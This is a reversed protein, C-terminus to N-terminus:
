AICATRYMSDEAVHPKLWQPGDLQQSRTSLLSVARELYGNKVMAVHFATTHPIHLKMVSNRHRHLRTANLLAFFGGTKISLKSALYSACVVVNAVRTIRVPLVRSAQLMCQQSEACLEQPFIGSLLTSAKHSITFVFQSGGSGHFRDVDFELM